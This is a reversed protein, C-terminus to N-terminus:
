SMMIQALAKKVNDYHTYGVPISRGDPFTIFKREIASVNNLNVAYSRHCQIFIPSLKKLLSDISESTFYTESSTFISTERLNREMYWIENEPLKQKKQRTKFYLYLENNESLNKLATQLAKGLLQSLRSKLIFYIHKAEYVDPAYELYQSIFIIQVNPDLETVKKAVSIGSILDDGLEIDMFILDYSCGTQEISNLFTKGSFFETVNYKIELNKKLEEQIIKSHVPDDDCIAIELM